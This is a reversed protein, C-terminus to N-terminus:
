KFPPTRSVLNKSGIYGYISNRSLKVTCLIRQVGLCTSPIYLAGEARRPNSGHVYLGGEARDPRSENLHPGPWHRCRGLGLWISGQAWPRVEDLLRRTRDDFLPLKLKGGQNRIGVGASFPSCKQHRRRSPYPRSKPPM